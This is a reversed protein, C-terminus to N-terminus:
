ARLTPCHSARLSVCQMSGDCQSRLQHPDSSLCYLLLRADMHEHVGCTDRSAGGAHGAYTPVAGVAGRCAEHGAAPPRRRARDPRGHPPCPLPSLLVHPLGPRFGLSPAASPPVTSRGWVRPDGPGAGATAVLSRCSRGCHARPTAGAGERRILSEHQAGGSHPLDHSTARTGSTHGGLLAGFRTHSASGVRRAHPSVTCAEKLGTSGRANQCSSLQTM